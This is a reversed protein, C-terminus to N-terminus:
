PKLIERIAQRCKSLCYDDELTPQITHLFDLFIVRNMGFHHTMLKQVEAQWEEDSMSFPPQLLHSIEDRCEGLCQHYHDVMDMINYANCWNHNISM